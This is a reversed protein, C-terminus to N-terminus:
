PSYDPWADSHNGGDTMLDVDAESSRELLHPNGVLGLLVCRVSMQDRPRPQWRLVLMGWMADTFQGGQARQPRTPRGGELIRWVAAASMHQVFPAQGSLVEYVTTGLSYCDSAKAPQCKESGFKGPSLLEPSIWRM